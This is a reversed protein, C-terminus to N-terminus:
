SATRELVGLLRQGYANRSLRASGKLAASRLAELEELHCSYFDIIAALCEADRPPLIRGDVGDRVLSGANPTCVVPLGAALAEYTVTASGECVSPLVLLDAWRFLEGMHSRPVVGLFQVRSSLEAVREPALVIRGALRLEVEKTRLSSLAQILYPVGKRLGVEGAFLLRLPGPRRECLLIQDAVRLDVGYPVLDCKEQACGMDALASIVAPSGAVIRDALAHEAEERAALADHSTVPLLGPEWGPWRRVEEALLEREVRRPMITQEMICRLGRRKAYEFLELSATNFGWVTDAAGVGQKVIHECFLHGGRAFANSREESNRVRSLEWMNWLGLGDFSTVINAPLVHDSRGLWRQVAHAKPGLAAMRLATRLWPKNGVYIDTFLRELAGAEYLIRPVAYHM